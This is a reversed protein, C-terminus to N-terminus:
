KVLIQLIKLLEENFKLIEEESIDIKHVDLM